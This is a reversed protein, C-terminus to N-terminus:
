KQSSLLHKLKDSSYGQITRYADTLTQFDILKLEQMAQTSAKPQAEAYQEKAPEESEQQPKGGVLSAIKHVKYGVDKKWSCRYIFSPKGPPSQVFRQILYSLKLPHQRSGFM